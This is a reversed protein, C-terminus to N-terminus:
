AAGELAREKLGAKLEKTRHTVFEADGYSGFPDRKWETIGYRESAWAQAEALVARKTEAHSKGHAAWVQFTKRGHNYWDGGPDTEFGPRHVQWHAGRGGRGYDAPTYAIFVHGKGYFGHPNAVKLARLEDTFRSM